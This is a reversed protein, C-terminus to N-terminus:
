RKKDKIAMVRRRFRGPTAQKLGRGWLRFGGIFLKGM